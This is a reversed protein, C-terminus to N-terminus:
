CLLALDAELPLILITAEDQSAVREPSIIRAEGTALFFAKLALGLAELDLPALKRDERTETSSRNLGTLV